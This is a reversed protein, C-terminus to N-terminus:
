LIVGRVGPRHASSPDEFYKRSQRSNPHDPGLTTEHVRLARQHLPRAEDSRGLLALLRGLQDLDTAVAPHNPGFAVEDIRLARRHFPLAETGRGLATLVRGIHNLDIAVTPHGTGRIAEDILLARQHLPLAEDPRGMDALARGAHNLDTAVAPDNLGLTAEHIRLARQHLPLAEAARGLAALAWGLSNLDEAVDPHDPGLTSEHSRLARQLVPLADDSRGLDALVWGVNMLEAAVAPADADLAAEYLHLAREHLALGELHRGQRRVYTAADSLLSATVTTAAADPTIHTTAALVCSLLEQWRPWTEPTDWVDGPLDARLLTLATDLANGMSAPDSNGRQRTVDQVLRHLVVANGTRRALSYEVLTGVADNFVIPDASSSALPEPLKDHHRTFLNLPILEPGLWACLELLQVAAPVTSQLRDISVSWVTAVTTPHGVAHGRSHLDAGREDLLQLYERPPMGTQDLYAAAQDVALALDGLRAALPAAQENSLAPARRRLLAVSESRKLTDLELVTGLARFGSRRTTILVHGPGGPLLTSIEDANEANDFILLWRDRGRLARHVMGLVVAPDTSEPLGLEKALRNFQSASLAAQEANFWWALDYDGANRHAFEIAIQTKGIGGMGRLAHVTVARNEALSSRLQRLEKSRGTFNPNRTPVNWIEPLSGPVRSSPRAAPRSVLFGGDVTAPGTTGDRFIQNEPFAEAAAAIIRSRGDGLAGSRIHHAVERWYELPTQGGVWGPQRSRGFGARELIQVANLYTPFANALAEIESHTLEDDM